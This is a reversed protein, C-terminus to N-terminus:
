TPRRSRKAVAGQDARRHVARLGGDARGRWKAYSACARDVTALLACDIDRVAEWEEGPRECLSDELLWEADAPPVGAEIFLAKLLGRQRRLAGLLKLSV